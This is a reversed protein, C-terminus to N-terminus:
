NVVQLLCSNNLHGPQVFMKDVTSTDNCAMLRRTPPALDVSERVIDKVNSMNRKIHESSIMTVSDIVLRRRRRTRGRSQEDVSTADM